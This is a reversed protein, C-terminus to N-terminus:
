SKKIQDFFVKIGILDDEENIKCELFFNKSRNNILLRLAFKVTISKDELLHFKDRDEFHIFKHLYHNEITTKDTELMNALHQNCRKILGDNDVLLYGFDNTELERM